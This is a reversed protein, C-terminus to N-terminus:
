RMPTAMMTGRSADERERAKIVERAKDAGEKDGQRDLLVAMTEYYARQMPSDKGDAIVENILAIGKGRTTRDAQTLKDLHRLVFVDRQHGQMMNYKFIDNLGAVMDAYNQQQAYGAVYLQVVCSSAMSFDLTKAFQLLKEYAEKDFNPMPLSDKDSFQWTANQLAGSLLRDVRDGGVTRAFRARNSFVQQLPASFPDRIHQELLSWHGEKMLDENSFGDLFELVVRSQEQSMGARGLVTLYDQLDELTKSGAEYRARRERLTGTPSLAIKGQAILDEPGRSGVIRHVVEGTKADIWLLTPFASVDYKNKLTIGEGKEMDYKVNIFNQNFFDAVENRSFVNRELAKCPGCWEAFCDMFIYKGAKQAKQLTTQWSPNEELNIKRDQALSTGGALLGFLIIVYKKM